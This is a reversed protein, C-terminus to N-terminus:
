KCVEWPRLDTIVHDFTARRCNVKSLVDSMIHDDDEERKTKESMLLATCSSEEYIMKKPFLVRLGQDLVATLSSILIGATPGLGNLDM